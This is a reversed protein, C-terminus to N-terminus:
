SQIKKIQEQLKQLRAENELERLETHELERVTSLYMIALSINKMNPEQLLKISENVLAKKIDDMGYEGM